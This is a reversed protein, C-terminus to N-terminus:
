SRNMSLAQEVDVAVIRSVGPERMTVGILHEALEMTNKNHTIFLFQIWQSMEKVLECFRRVNVDDLPADVEDLMCFPAPNLQFIAFILAVATMAKEGGSLMHITSNRKGPPQAMILIGAELLNDCTWQLTARGGGFLRPFLSQFSANIQEFTEQLRQQTEKDMKAIALELTTLAEMLDQHQKDLYLKRQLETEYEEIAILNVAGLRSIKDSVELLDREREELTLNVPLNNLLDEPQTNLESLSEIMNDAHISLAQEQMQQHQITEQITKIQQELNRGFQALHNNKVQLEEVKQRRKSLQEDFEHHRLVTQELLRKHDDGASDMELCRASLSELRQQLTDIRLVERQM